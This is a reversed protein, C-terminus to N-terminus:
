EKHIKDIAPIGPMQSSSTHSSGANWGYLVVRPVGSWSRSEFMKNKNRWQWTQRGAMGEGSAQTRTSVPITRASADWTIFRYWLFRCTLGAWCTLNMLICGTRHRTKSCRMYPLFCFSDHVPLSMMAHIDQFRHDLQLQLVQQEVIISSLLILNSGPSRHKAAM